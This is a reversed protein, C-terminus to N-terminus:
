LKFPFLFNLGEISYLTYLVCEMCAHFHFNTRIELTTFDTTFDYIMAFSLLVNHCFDNSEILRRWFFERLKQKSTTEENKNEGMRMHFTAHVSYPFLRRQFKKKKKCLDIFVLTSKKQSPLPSPLNVTITRAIEINLCVFGDM